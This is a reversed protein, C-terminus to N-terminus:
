CQSVTFSLLLVRQGCSSGLPKGNMFAAVLTSHINFEIEKKTKECDDTKPLSFLKLGERSKLTPEKPGLLSLRSM